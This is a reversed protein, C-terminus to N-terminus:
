RLDERTDVDRLVGPDDVEIATADAARSAILDRAGRDGDLVVLAPYLAAAFGVPNGRVDRHVPAAILAGDRIAAAIRTITASEVWPMDGLAVIWGRAVPVARVAWALSAGMGREADPCSTVRAGGARLRAALAEDRSRVVAVVGDVASALAALSRDVVISGDSLTALLKDGGFRSSSGAALLIGILPRM